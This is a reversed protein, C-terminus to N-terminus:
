IYFAYRNLLLICCEQVSCSLYQIELIIRRKAQSIMCLPFLLAVIKEMIFFAVIDTKNFSIFAIERRYWFSHISHSINNNNNTNENRHIQVYSTFMKTNNIFMYVLCYEYKVVAKVNMDSVSRWFINM